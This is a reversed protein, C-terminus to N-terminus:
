FNGERVGTVLDDTVQSETDPWHIIKASEVNVGQAKLEDVCKKAIADPTNEGGESFNVEEGAKKARDQGHGGVATIVVKFQGM